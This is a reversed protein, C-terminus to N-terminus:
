LKELYPIILKPNTTTTLSHFQGTWMNGLSDADYSEIKGIKNLELSLVQIQDKSFM